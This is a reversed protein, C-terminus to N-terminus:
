VNATANLLDEQKNTIEWKYSIGQLLVQVFTNILADIAVLDVLNAHITLLSIDM